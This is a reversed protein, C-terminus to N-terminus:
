QSTKLGIIGILILSMFFAQTLQFPQKLFSIDVIKIGVLVLGMWTALAISAPIQKMALSFCYINGLGFVIYGILPAVTYVHQKESFFASWQIRRFKAMDLYKLSYTWAIEFIAAIFLSIWAM